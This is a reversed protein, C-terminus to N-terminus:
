QSAKELVTYTALCNEHIASGRDQPQMTMCGLVFENAINSLKKEKHEAVSSTHLAEITPHQNLLKKSFKFDSIFITSCELLRM